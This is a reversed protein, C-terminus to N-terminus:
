TARRQTRRQRRRCELCDSCPTDSKIRDESSTHLKSAPISLDEVLVQRLKENEEILEEIVRQHKLLLQLMHNESRAKGALEDLEVADEGKLIPNQLFSHIVKETHGGLPIESTSPLFSQGSYEATGRGDDKSSSSQSTSGAIKSALQLVNGASLQVDPTQGLMGMSSQIPGPIISKINSMDPIMGLNVMMKVVAQEPNSAVVLKKLHVWKKQQEAHIRRLMKMEILSCDIDRLADNIFGCLIAFWNEHNLMASSEDAGFGHGFGVGCGVGAEINKVGLRRLSGNVHRGVGSFADTAGRTASMVQQLMPIAGLYIPRGVGIGIGCGVGFGTFVQGVKLSFPNEM